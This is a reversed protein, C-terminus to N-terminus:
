VNPFTLHFDTRKQFENSVSLIKAEEFYNGLIQLGVPMAGAFGCPISIAPISALNVSITFIDSMYMTLPDKTKEGFKFASTPATPTFIVDVKKFATEFDERIKTRAKQANKYYADYYGSSLAYTGLIIRRKVEAGFGEDRTKQYLEKLNKHDPNRYGYRIGDFRSLNSSAEATAILYYVPIAYKTHPLSIKVIDAGAKKFVDIANEICSLVEPDIGSCFYEDPIGIRLKSIDFGSKLIESYNEVLRSNSTSDKVDHGSITELAYAMDLADRTFPSIQDLSSAFAILGYRSIRGYTPKLGCIGCFSAPQRVSGGTDSGLAMYSMGAAVAVASGGSSGGPVYDTNWPNKTKMFASNETSSGMAFEDLNTKGCIVAGADKLKKVVTADYLPMYNELIKSGATTVTGETLINDKLAIPIHSWFSKKDNCSSGCPSIARLFANLAPDIKQIRDAIYSHLEAVSLEGFDIMRRIEHAPKYHLPVDKVNAYKLYNEPM